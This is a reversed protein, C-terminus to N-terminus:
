MRFSFGAGLSFLDLVGCKQSNEKNEVAILQTEKTQRKHAIARRGHKRSLKKSKCHMISELPFFEGEQQRNYNTLTNLCKRRGGFATYFPKQLPM